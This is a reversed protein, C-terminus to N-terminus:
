GVAPLTRGGTRGEPANVRGFHHHVALRFEVARILTRAGASIELASRRGFASTRIERVPALRRTSAPAGGAEAPM